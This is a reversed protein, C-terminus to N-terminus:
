SHDLREGEAEWRLKRAWRALSHKALARDLLQRSVALMRAAASVNGRTAKYRLRALYPRLGHRNILRHLAPGVTGLLRAAEQVNGGANQLAGRILESEVKEKKHRLTDM